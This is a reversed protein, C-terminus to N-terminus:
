HRGRLLCLGLVFIPLMAGVGFGCIRPGTRPPNIRVVRAATFSEEPVNPDPLYTAVLTAQIVETVEAAEFRGATVTGAGSPAVLWEAVLTVDTEVADADTAIAAFDTSSGGVVADPGTVSLSATGSPGVTAGDDPVEDLVTIQFFDFDASVSTDCATGCGAFDGNAAVVGVSVADPLANTVSGVDTYTLGDPSLAGVFQDGFRLLRLFVVNPRAVSDENYFAGPRQSDSFTTGDINLLVVGRFEGREGSAYALGLAVTHLENVYM